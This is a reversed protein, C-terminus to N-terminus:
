KRLRLRYMLLIIPSLGLLSILAFIRDRKGFNMICRFNSFLNVDYKKALARETRYYKSVDGNNIYSLLVLKLTHVYRFISFVKSIQTDGFILSDSEFVQSVKKDSYVNTYKNKSNALSSLSDGRQRYYHIASKALGSRVNPLYQLRTLNTEGQLYSYSYAELLERKVLRCWTAYPLGLTKAITYSDFVYDKDFQKGHPTISGSKDDYLMVNSMCIDLDNLKAHDYMSKLFDESIYDDSDINIIYEGKALEFADQRAQMEGQNKLKDIYVFRSDNKIYRRIIEDCGDPSCDNVLIFECDKITQNVLSDLFKPLYKEVGYVPVLVSVKM